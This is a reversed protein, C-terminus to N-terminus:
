RLSWKLLFLREIGNWKLNRLPGLRRSIRDPDKSNVLRISPRSHGHSNFSSNRLEFDTMVARVGIASDDADVFQLNDLDRYGSVEDLRVAWKDWDTFTTLRIGPEILNSYRDFVLPNDVNMFICDDIGGEAGAYFTIGKWRYIGEGWFLTRTMPDGDTNTELRGYVRMRIGNQKFTIENSTLPNGLFNLAPIELTYGPDVTYNDLLHHDENAAWVVVNNAVGDMDYPLKGDEDITSQLHEIPQGQVKNATLPLFVFISTTILVFVLLM